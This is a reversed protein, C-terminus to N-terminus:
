GHDGSVGGSHILLWWFFVLVVFLTVLFLMAGWNLKNPKKEVVTRPMSQKNTM